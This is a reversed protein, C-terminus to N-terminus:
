KPPKVLENAKRMVEPDVKIILADVAAQNMKSLPDDRIAALAADRANNIYTKREEALMEPLVEEFTRQRPAIRGDLRIIHYGFSSAVPESLDGVNKLAFAADTFKSDMKGRDFYGTHGGNQLVSPDESVEKALTAFDAGAVLKARAELALKQAGARERKSFDFLIHSTDVQEPLRYKEGRVAYLERARLEFQAKRSDFDRGASEEVQAIFLGADVRDIELARRRQMEADKYFDSARAQVALSKGVLMRVLLDTVRKKDTAFGGRIDAPVKLLEAEYDGRTVKAWRNEVLVENPDPAPQAYTALGLTALTIFAMAHLMRLRSQHRTRKM